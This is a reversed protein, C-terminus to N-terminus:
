GLGSVSTTRLKGDGGKVVTCTFYRTRGDVAIAGGVKYTSGSQSFSGPVISANASSGTRLIVEAECDARAKSEDSTSGFLRTCGWIGISLVVLVLVAILCGSSSAAGQRERISERADTTEGSEEADSEVEEGEGGGSLTM